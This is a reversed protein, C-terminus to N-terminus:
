FYEKLSLVNKKTKNSFQKEYLNINPYNETKNLVNKNIKIM